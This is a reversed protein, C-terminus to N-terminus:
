FEFRSLGSVCVDVWDVSVSCMLVSECSLLMSVDLGERVWCDEGVSRVRSRMCVSFMVEADSDDEDASGRSSLESM